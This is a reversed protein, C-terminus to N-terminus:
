ARVHPAGTRGAGPGDDRMLIAIETLWQEADPTAAPGSLYREVRAEWTTVDGGVDGRWPLGHERGWALLEATSDVLTDYGGRHVVTAYRGAPLVDAVVRGDGNEGPADTPVGVDVQVDGSRYDVVRYRILPAGAASLGRAGLWGLLEDLVSPVVRGLEDRSLTLRLALYPQAARHEILPCATV